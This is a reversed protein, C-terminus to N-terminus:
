VRVAPDTDRLFKVSTVMVRTGSSRLVNFNSNVRAVSTSFVNIEM